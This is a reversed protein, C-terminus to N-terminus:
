ADAKPKGKAPPANDVQVPVVHAGHAERIAALDDASGEIQDGKAHDGFASTVVLVTKM